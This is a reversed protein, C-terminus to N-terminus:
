PKLEVKPQHRQEDAGCYRRRYISSHSTDDPM